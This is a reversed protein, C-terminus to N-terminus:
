LELAVQQFDAVQFLTSVGTAGSRAKAQLIHSVQLGNVRYTNTEPAYGTPHAVFFPQGFKDVGRM